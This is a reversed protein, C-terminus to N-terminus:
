FIFLCVKDASGAPSVGAFWQPLRLMLVDVKLQFNPHLGTFKMGLRDFVVKRVRNGATCEADAYLSDEENQEQSVEQAYTAQVQNRYSCVCVYFFKHYMDFIDIPRLSVELRRIELKATGSYRLSENQISCQSEPIPLHDDFNIRSM